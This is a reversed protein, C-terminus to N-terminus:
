LPGATLAAPVAPPLGGGLDQWHESLADSVPVQLAIALDQKAREVTQAQSAAVRNDLERTRETWDEFLSEMLDAHPVDTSDRGLEKQLIEVMQRYYDLPAVAYASVVLGDPVAVGKRLAINLLGADFRRDSRQWNINSANIVTDPHERVLRDIVLSNGTDCYLVTADPKLLYYM